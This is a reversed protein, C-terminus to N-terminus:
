AGAIRSLYYFLLLFTTNKLHPAAERVFKRIETVGKVAAKLSIHRRHSKITLLSVGLEDAIKQNTLGAIVLKLVNIEQRTLTELVEPISQPLQM